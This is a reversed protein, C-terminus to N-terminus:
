HVDFTGTLSAESLTHKRVEDWMSKADAMDSMELEPVDLAAIRFRYHHTGHGKPPQPGDYRTNGFDNRSFRVGGKSKVHVGRSLESWDKPINFMGCHRFTGRPADPDEVILAFSGAGEPAGSWKLPPMQNEGLRTYKDPVREGEAFAPSTLTMAM